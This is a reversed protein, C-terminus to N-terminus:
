KSNIETQNDMYPRLVEPIKVSGDEQQNLELIPILIRPTAIVTNNLTHCFQIKGDKDKYRLNLRRAQFDLLASCSHTEGYSERSPMWCEIDNMFYKGRGMDGTCINLVRYPINLTQLFEKSNNLLEEHMQMSLDTDNKAIIFQEVKHFQHVRYLGHTDKGYSGAERRFCASVGAFKVPLDEEKLMEDRYYGAISVESTGVLYKDDQQFYYIEGEEGPFHGTGVLNERNVIVPVDMLTYGKRTIFDEAYKILAEKLRAGDGKLIYSRTGGIKVGREFDIIDLDKGLQEHPKIPFDFKPIDGVNEIEINASDDKGVPTSDHVYMPVEYMMEDYKEKIPKIEDELKDQKADVEKMKQLANAKESDSMTPIQKGVSNKESRLEEIKQTLEKRQDDFQILQDFDLDINKNKAVEKIKDINERIHKIDLM